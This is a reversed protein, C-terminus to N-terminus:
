CPSIHMVNDCPRRLRAWQFVIWSPCHVRCSEFEVSTETKTEHVGVSHDCQTPLPFVDWRLSHALHLPNRRSHIQAYKSNILCFSVIPLVHETRRKREELKRRIGEPSTVKGWFNDLQSQWLFLNRQDRRIIWTLPSEVVLGDCSVFPFEIWWNSIFFGGCGCSTLHPDFDSWGIGLWKRNRFFLVWGIKSFKFISFQCKVNSMQFPLIQMRLTVM